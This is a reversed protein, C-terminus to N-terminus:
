GQSSSSAKMKGMTIEKQLQYIHDKSLTILHENGYNKLLTPIDEEEM